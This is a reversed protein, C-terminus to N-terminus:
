RNIIGAEGLEAAFRDDFDALAAIELERQGDRATRSDTSTVAAGGITSGRARPVAVFKM